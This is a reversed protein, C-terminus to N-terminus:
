KGTRKCTEHDTAIWKGQAQVEGQHELESDSKKTFTDRSGSNAFVLTANQWGPATEHAHMGFNDFGDQTFAKATRDFGWTWAFVVPHPNEATKKEEYRGMYWFGGLDRKVHVKAETAHAPGAPGANAQGSCSWDGDFYALQSLEPAPSPAAGAAPPAPKTATQAAFGSVAAIAILAATGLTLLGTKM